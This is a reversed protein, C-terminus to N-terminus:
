ESQRLGRVGLVPVMTSGVQQKEISTATPTGLAPQPMAEM